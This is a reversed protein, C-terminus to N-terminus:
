QMEINALKVAAAWAKLAIEFKKKYEEPTAVWPTAGQSILFKQTEESQTIENTWKGLKDLIDKPTGAPAWVGWLAVIDGTEAGTTEKLTPVDPLAPSRINSANAILKIRGQKAQGTAFVVDAFAFDIQKATVDQIAAATAKYSVRTAKAGVKALYIETTALASTTATGYTAKGDKSKLYATLDAVTNIPSDPAVALIFPTEAFGVISVLDKTVDVPMQKFIATNGATTVTSAMLLTYGDPKGKATADLSLNGSAGVKNEVIFNGGSVKALKEAYWRAIIDAGGGAAFGVQVRVVRDPYEARTPTTALTAMAFAAMTFATAVTRSLQHLVTKSRMALASNTGALGNGPMRFASTERDKESECGKGAIARRDNGPQLGALGRQAGCWPTRPAGEGAFLDSAAV